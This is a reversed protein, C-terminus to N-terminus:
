SVVIGGDSNRITSGPQIYFSQASGNTINSSSFMCASGQTGYNISLTRGDGSVYATYNSNALSGPLEIAASAGDGASDIASIQSALAHCIRQSEVYSFLASAEQSSQYYVMLAMTFVLLVVGTAYLFELSAQAHKEM